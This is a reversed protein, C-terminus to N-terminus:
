LVPSQQKCCPQQDSSCPRSSPATCNRSDTELASPSTTLLHQDAHIVPPFSPITCDLASHCSSGAAGALAPIYWPGHAETAMPFDYDECCIISRSQSGPNSYGTELAFVLQHIWRSLRLGLQRWMRMPQIFWNSSSRKKSISRAIRSPSTQEENIQMFSVPLVMLINIRKSRPLLSNANTLNLDISHLCGRSDIRQFTDAWTRTSTHSMRIMFRLANAM